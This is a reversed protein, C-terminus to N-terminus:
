HGADELVMAACKEGIMMCPAATNGSPITPMISADAVRLGQIGHVRLRDDVVAMPDHGMKCTGVMHQTIAGFNRLFDLIEEDSQVAPGPQLEEAITAGLPPMAVVERARRLALIATMRDNPTELFRFNISPQVFPDASKIHISGTSETRQVHSFMFFGEIPSMRRREGPKADIIFPAIVMMFDPDELDPRSRGFVRLSGLGQAIFGSRFLIYRVVERVLGLGSGRKAVSLGERNFRWKMVAGYHDRLNEGVGRLEHVVAIGHKELINPSGIGSLELLKPSNATGCSVIVDRAARAEEMAGNHRFRLGVCRKGELILSTTEAGSLITLNPRTRAPKLYQTATSQRTGRHVTQQAMAVGEQSAGSYDANRPYGAKVASEIFLNYFPTIKDAEIVKIPGSRGRFEDSGLNTSEMKKFTPLVDNYSWGRCGMQAWTDYDVPQGRNYVVGNIASSGGLMKGRPVPIVRNGHTENPESLYCWDTTPNDILFVNGAPPKSFINDAGKTGAELCLVTHKGSESLRAALVGGAAGSGVVIFDYSASRM